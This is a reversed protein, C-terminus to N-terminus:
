TGRRRRVGAVAVDVGEQPDFTGAFGVARASAAFGAHPAEHVREGDFQGAVGSPLSAGSRIKVREALDARVRVIAMTVGDVLREDACDREIVAPTTVVTAPLASSHAGPRIPGSIPSVDLPSTRNTPARSRASAGPKINPLGCHGHSAARATLLTAVPSKTKRRASSPAGRRFARTNLAKRAAAVSVSRRAKRASARVFYDVISYRSGATWPRRM